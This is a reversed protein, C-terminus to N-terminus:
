SHSSHGMLFCNKGEEVRRLGVPTVAMGLM